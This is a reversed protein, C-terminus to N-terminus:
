VVRVMIASGSRYNGGVPVGLAAAAADNAADPLGAQNNAAASLHNVAAAITRLWAPWGIPPQDSPVPSIM